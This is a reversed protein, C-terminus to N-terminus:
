LKLPLAEGNAFYILKTGPHSQSRLPSVWERNKGNVEPVQTRLLHNNRARTILGKTSSSSILVVFALHGPGLPNWKTSLAGQSLTGPVKVNAPIEHSVSLSLPLSSRTITFKAPTCINFEWTQLKTLNNERTSTGFFFFYNFVTPALRLGPKRGHFFVFIACPPTRPLATPVDVDGVHAFRQRWKRQWTPRIHLQKLILCQEVGARNMVSSFLVFCNTRCVVGLTYKENYFSRVQPWQFISFAM